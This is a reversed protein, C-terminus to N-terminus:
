ATRVHYRFVLRRSSECDEFEIHAMIEAAVSSEQVRLRWTSVRYAHIEAEAKCDDIMKWDAKTAKSVPTQKYLSM